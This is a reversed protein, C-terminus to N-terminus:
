EAAELAAFSQHLSASTALGIWFTRTLIFRFLYIFWFRHAVNTPCIRPISNWFKWTTSKTYYATIVSTRVSTVLCTLTLPLRFNVCTNPLFRNQVSPERPRALSLQGVRCVERLPCCAMQMTWRPAPLVEDACRLPSSALRVCRSPGALPQQDVSPRYQHKPTPPTRTGAADTQARGRGLIVSQPDSQAPSRSHSPPQQSEERGYASIPSTGNVLGIGSSSASHLAGPAKMSGSGVGDARTGDGKVVEDEGFEAKWAQLGGVLLVPIKKLMKRFANEYIARGLSMFPSNAPGFDASADDYMVVLDFKDRNSFPIRENQPAISLSDEIM